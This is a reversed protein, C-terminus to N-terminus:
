RLLTATCGSGQLATDPAISLGQGPALPQALWQWQGQTAPAGTTAWAIRAGRPLDGETDNAVLVVSGHGHHQVQCPLTTPPTSLREVVPLPGTDIQLGPHRHTHAAPLWLALTVACGAALLTTPTTRRAAIPPRPTM